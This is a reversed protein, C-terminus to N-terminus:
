AVRMYQVFIICISFLCIFLHLRAVNEGHKGWVFTGFTGTEPVNAVRLKHAFPPSCGNGEVVTRIILFPLRQRTVM